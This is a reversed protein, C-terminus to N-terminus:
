SFAYERLKEVDKVIIGRETIILSKDRLEGISITTTERSINLINALDQHTLKPQVRVGYFSPKGFQYALYSLQHAVKKDATKLSLNELQQINSNFRKGAERLLEKYVGPNGNALESLEQATISYIKAQSMTEYYYTEPGHYIDQDFLAKYVLTLPFVNGPGYISQISLNGDTGILYRKVFGSEILNVVQQGHTSQIVENKQYKTCNGKLLADGLNQRFKTLPM